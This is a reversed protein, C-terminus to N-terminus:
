RLPWVKGFSRRCLPVKPPGYFFFFFFCCVQKRVLKQPDLWRMVDPSHGIPMPGGNDNFVLGFYEREGIDLHSFVLDLLASGKAKKDLDFAHTTDDLFSV